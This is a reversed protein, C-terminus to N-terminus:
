RVYGGFAKLAEGFPRSSVLFVTTTEHSARPNLTNTPYFTATQWEGLLQRPDLIIKKNLENKLEVATVYLGDAAWSILPHATVAAGYVLTITKQTQMATRSLGPPTELLRAPAYLSQIAFRTLSVPNIARDPAEQRAESDEEKAPLPAQQPLVVEVQQTNHYNEDASFRLVIVEGDPMLQVVLQKNQFPQHANVYLTDDMKMMGVTKDLESDIISIASPFRVMREENLPLQIPIPSKDWLVHETSAGYLVSSM